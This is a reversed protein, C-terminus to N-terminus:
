RDGDDMLRQFTGVGCSRRGTSVRKCYLACNRWSGRLETSSSTVSPNAIWEPLAATREYEGGRRRFSTM